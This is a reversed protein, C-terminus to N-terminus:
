HDAGGQGAEGRGAQRRPSWRALPGGGESRTPWAWAKPVQGPAQVSLPGRQSAWRPFRLDRCGAVRRPRDLRLKQRLVPTDTASGRLPPPGKLEKDARQKEDPPQPRTKPGKGRNNLDSRTLIQIISRKWFRFSEDM